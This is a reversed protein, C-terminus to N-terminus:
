QDLIDDRNEAPAPALEGTDLDPEPKSDAKFATNFGTFVPAPHLDDGAPLSMQVYSNAERIANKLLDKAGLAYGAVVSMFALMILPVSMVPTERTRDYLAPDRPKGWFTLMWVRTMYF